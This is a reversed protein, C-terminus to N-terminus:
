DHIFEACGTKFTKYEKLMLIGFSFFYFRNQVLYQTFLVLIDDFLVISFELFVPKYFRNVYM